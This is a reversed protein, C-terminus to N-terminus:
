VKDAVLTATMIQDEFKGDVWVAWTQEGTPLLGGKAVISAACNTADPTHKHSVNWSDAGVCRFCHKGEKNQLVPWGKHESVQRYVGNWYAAGPHGELLVCVGALQERAAASQRKIETDQRDKHRREAEEAEAESQSRCCM